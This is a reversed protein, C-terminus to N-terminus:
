KRLSVARRKFSSGSKPITRDWLSRDMASVIKRWSYITKRAAAGWSKRPTILASTFFCSAGRLSLAGRIFGTGWAMARGERGLRSATHTSMELWSVRRVALQFALLHESAAALPREGAAEPLM